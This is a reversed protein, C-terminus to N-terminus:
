GAQTAPPVPQDFMACIAATQLAHAASDIRPDVGFEAWFETSVLFNMTRHGTSDTVNSTLYGPLGGDHGWVTGCPTAATQIGLGYGPGDPQTPDQPVTTRLQALQAAPLLTGSMLATDFRSWDQATSVMAGAAGGWAPAIDSVDVHGDHRPGVFSTFQAPVGSPMHAPDPEYGHAHAGSWISSTAYYTHTLHLPGAIRDQVLEPLSQGTVRELVAGIAVYDTNSYSFRDGPAFLPPHRVGIALLESNTWRHRDQGVISPVLTPDNTYDYLGSTHNLLMRLTIADGDPVQGPLWKAVPDTLALTGDAVLQLVLAAMVTKTNSGVRYEDGPRLVHDSTTWPAQAAIEIPQGRGDDVRVIVGPAGAAVLEHALRDLQAREIDAASRPIAAAPFAAGSSVVLSMLVASAALVRLRVGRNSSLFRRSM